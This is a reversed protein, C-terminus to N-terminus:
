SSASVHSQLWEVLWEIERQMIEDRELSLVSHRAGKAVRLTKDGAKCNEVFQKSAKPDNITDGDGHILLIPKDRVFGSAVQGEPDELLVRGRELFDYIQRFTGVLPTSLPKDQQLFKRYAPDSTVGELDLKTDIAFGPLMRALLPAMKQVIWSPQSHPHLRLLPASAVYAAIEERRKGKFAYALTIAGGMSHGFMILPIQRESCQELNLSVFYELDSFVHQDDTHGRLKGPSTRGSGRQDFMFSEYGRQALMDMFRHNLQTYECFGHVILVRGHTTAATTSSPWTVHAFKAGDFETYELPPIQTTCKYPYAM